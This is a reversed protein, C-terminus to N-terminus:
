DGVVEQWEKSFTAGGYVIPPMDDPINDSLGAQYGITTFSGVLWGIIGNGSDADIQNCILTGKVANHSNLYITGGSIGLIQVDPDNYDGVYNNYDDVSIDMNGYSMLILLSDEPFDGTDTPVLGCSVDIEGTSILKGIGEYYIDNDPSDIDFEEIYEGIIIDSDVLVNGLIELYYHGDVEDFSFKFQNSGESMIFEYPPDDPILGPDISFVGDGIDGDDVIAEDIELFDAPPGHIQNIFNNVYINVNFNPPDFIDNTMPENRYFRDSGDHLYVGKLNYDVPNSSTGIRTSGTMRIDGMVILLLPDSLPSPTSDEIHATWGSMELDGGVSLFETEIRSFEGIDLTGGVLVKGGESFDGVQELVRLTLDRGVFLPGSIFSKDFLGLIGDYTLSGKSYIYEFINVETSFSVALNVEVERSVGNSETGVSNIIYNTLKGDDNFIEDYSVEFSGQVNNNSDIVNGTYPDSPLSNNDDEHYEEIKFFIDSVGAEAINLARLKGEDLRTFTIDSFVYRTLVTTTLIIVLGLILILITVNGQKSKLNIINRKFM